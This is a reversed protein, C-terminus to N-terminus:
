FSFDSFFRLLANLGGGGVWDHFGYAFDSRCPCWLPRHGSFLLLIGMLYVARRVYSPPEPVSHPDDRTSSWVYRRLWFRGLFGCRSVIPTAM